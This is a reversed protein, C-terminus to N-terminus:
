FPLSLQFGVIIGVLALPQPGTGRAQRPKTGLKQQGKQALSDLFFNNIRKEILFITSGENKNRIYVTLM